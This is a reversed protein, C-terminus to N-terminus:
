MVRLSIMADVAVASHDSVIVPNIDMTEVDYEGSTALEGLKIILDVLLDCSIKTGRFGKCFEKSRISHVMDMADERGVPLKRFAADKFLETYVGGTGLMIVKGFVPDEVIGLIFEVGSPATEELYFISDPFKGKMTSFELKLSVMDKIGLKVGGVDSKHLINPDSVKLVLPFKLDVTEPFDKVIIGKPTQIGHARLIAKAEFESINESM